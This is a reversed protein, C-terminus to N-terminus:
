PNVSTCLTLKAVLKYLHKVNRKHQEFERRFYETRAAKLMKDYRSRETQLAKWDHEAGYKIWISERRCVM